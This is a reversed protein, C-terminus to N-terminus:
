NDEDSNDLGESLSFSNVALRWRSRDEAMAMLEEIAGHAKLLSYIIM